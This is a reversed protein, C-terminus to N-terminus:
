LSQVWGLCAGYEGDALLLRASAEEVLLCSLLGCLVLCGGAVSPPLEQQQQQMAQAGEGDQQQGADATGASAAASAAAQLYLQQLGVAVAVLLGMPQPQCGGEESTTSCSSAANHVKELTEQLQQGELPELLAALGNAAQLLGALLVEWQGV